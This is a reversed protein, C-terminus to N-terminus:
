SADRGMGAEGKADQHMRESVGSMILSVGRAAAAIGVVAGVVVAGAFAFRMMGVGIVVAAIAAIILLARDKADEGSYRAFALELVGILVAWLGILEVAVYVTRGPWFVAALAVAVGVVGRLRTARKDMVGTGFLNVLGDAAVLAVFALLAAVATMGGSLPKAAGFIIDLIRGFMIGAPLVVAAIGFAIALVGTLILKWWSGRKSSDHHMM